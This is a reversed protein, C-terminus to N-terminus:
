DRLRLLMVQIQAWPEAPRSKIHIDLEALEAILRKLEATSVGRTLTSTKKLVFPHIGTEKAIAEPSKNGSTQMLALAYIQGALLGFFMYPDEQQTVTELLREVESRRGAFAADLLEFSTAQPNPEILERILEKSVPKGTLALKELESSLRWQDVGVYDILFQAADRPMELKRRKTEAELWKIAEHPQLEKAMFVEAQKELWKYTKTRKDPHTEILVVMTTDDTKELWDPLLTWVAKNSSVNRLVILRQSAFLTAGMFLDPLQELGLESGDYREAQVTSSDVVEKLRQELDYTNEGTLLYIM